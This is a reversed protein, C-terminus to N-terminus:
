DGPPFNNVVCLLLDGQDNDEFICSHLFPTLDCLACRFFHTTYNCNFTHM